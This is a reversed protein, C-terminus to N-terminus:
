VYDYIARAKEATGAKGSTIQGALSRIHDDIVGLRDPELLRPSPTPVTSVDQDSGPPLAREEFRTCNLTLTATVPAASDSWVHLVKNRYENETQVEHPFPSDIRIQTITQQADSAPVPLWLDVRRARDPVHRVSATYRISFSRSPAAPTLM